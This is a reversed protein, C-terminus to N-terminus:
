GKAIKKNMERYVERKRRSKFNVRTHGCTKSGSFRAVRISIGDELALMETTELLRDKSNLSVKRPLGTKGHNLNSMKMKRLNM